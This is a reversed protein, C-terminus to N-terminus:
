EWTVELFHSSCSFCPDYARILKEIELVIEDKNKKLLHGLYARVDTQMNLLNQCTPTIINAHEIRGHDNVAYEHWLIGRPVEIAAIGHGKRAKPQPVPEDKIGLKRCLRIAEYLYHVIEIAQAINNHFPNFSPFSIKSKKVFGQAEKGLMTHSNNIRALAGVM